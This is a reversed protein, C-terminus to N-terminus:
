KQITIIKARLAFTLQQILNTIINEKEIRRIEADTSINNTVRVTKNDSLREKSIVKNNQDIIEFTIVIIIKERTTVGTTDKTVSTAGEIVRIKVSYSDKATKVIPINLNSKLFYILDNPGSYEIKNIKLDTLDVNKLMPTFGCAPLLLLILLTLYKIKKM